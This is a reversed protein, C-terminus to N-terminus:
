RSDISKNATDEEKSKEFEQTAVEIKESPCDIVETDMVQGAEECEANEVHQKEKRAKYTKETRKKRHLTRHAKLRSM